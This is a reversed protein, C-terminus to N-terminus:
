FQRSAPSLDGDQPPDGGPLDREIRTEDSVDVGQQTLWVRLSAVDVFRHSAIGLQGAGEVNEERDDVFLVSSAPLELRALLREYFRRDPKRSGLHTSAIVDDLHGALIGTALEDIWVPYNSATVRLVLGDLEALLEAMGPIWATGGRRVRHFADADCPIGDAAFGAWFEAEDLEGREFAPWLGPSRRRSLETLDLGTGAQLARRFPDTLLTDMVDFAVAAVGSM